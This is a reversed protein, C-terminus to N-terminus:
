PAIIVFLATFSRPVIYRPIFQFSTLLKADISHPHPYESVPGKSGLRVTLPTLGVPLSEPPSWTYLWQIWDFLIM